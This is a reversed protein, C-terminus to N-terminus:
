HWGERGLLGAYASSVPRSGRDLWYALETGIRQMSLAELASQVPQGHQRRRKATRMRRCSGNALWCAKGRLRSPRVLSKSGLRAGWLHQHGGGGCATPGSRSGSLQASSKRDEVSCFLLVNADRRCRWKITTGGDHKSKCLKHINDGTPRRESRGMRNDGIRAPSSVVDVCVSRNRGCVWTDWRPRNTDVVFVACITEWIAHL